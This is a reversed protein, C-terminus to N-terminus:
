RFAFRYEGRSVGELARRAFLDARSWHQEVAHPAIRVAISEILDSNSNLRFSVTVEVPAAATM